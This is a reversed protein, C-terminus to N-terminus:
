EYHGCTNLFRYVQVHRILIQVATVWVIVLETVSAGELMAAVLAAVQIVLQWVLSVQWTHMDCIIHTYNKCKASICSSTNNKGYTQQRTFIHTIAVVLILNKM